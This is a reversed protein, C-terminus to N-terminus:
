ATRCCVGIQYKPQLLMQAFLCIHKETTSLIAWHKSEYHEYELLCYPENMAVNDQPQPPAAEALSCTDAKIVFYLYLIIYPSLWISDATKLRRIGYKRRM